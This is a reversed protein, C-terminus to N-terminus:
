PTLTVEVQQWDDSASVSGSYDQYGPRTVTLTYSGGSLGTFMVQGPPICDSTYSFSIDSVTPTWTTSATELFLKYRLYRNGDNSTDIDQSAITYYSSGTGDPGTYNWTANDNNTAIQMKVSDLGTDPPQAQPLWIIQHFNSPSGTDFTSSTLEGPTEYAGFLDRLHVEGNPANTTIDGDDDFYKTVDSYDNQGDGGSWDTQRIFGRGTTYTTDFGGGELRVTADSVPLQTGADKVTVLVSRPTKPAVILKIVQDAGPNIVFPSIPITGALDYGGDTFSLTYSDWEVDTITENGGASTTYTDSFKTIDPATGILKAGTLGFDIGGVPACLSNVSSVALDSTEDIAFSLQTIQQVAVTAHPKAPNPNAVDGITYTRESSYGAKSVSIEYANAGPPADVIQLFGDNNTTDDIIISTTGQNNEIHVDAGQIPQGEADFVQVFLAGNTSATELGRPGVHTTFVLPSFDTCTDCDVEIEVLRYDAPSLDNTTSGLTGDFPNDVNRIVTTITFPIGGRVITQNPQIVGLPIGSVLGVDEYALNRIIELQENGLATAVVKAESLRTVQIISIFSQYLVVAILLFIALGVLTEVLTFGKRTDQFIM